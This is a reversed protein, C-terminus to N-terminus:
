EEVELLEPNDHINGIVELVHVENARFLSDLWNTGSVLWACANFVVEGVLDADNTDAAKVVDGEFIRKGNKDKLGTYQGVTEPDVQPLYHGDVSLEDYRNRSAEICGIFVAPYCISDNRILDGEIWDGFSIDKGRFLIERM